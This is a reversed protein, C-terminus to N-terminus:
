DLKIQIDAERFCKVNTESCKLYDVNQIRLILSLEVLKAIRCDQMGEVFGAEAVTKAM